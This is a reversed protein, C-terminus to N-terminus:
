PSTREDDSETLYAGMPTFNYCRAIDNFKLRSTAWNKKRVVIVVKTMVQNVRHANDM